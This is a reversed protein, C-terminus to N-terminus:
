PSWIWADAVVAPEADQRAGGFVLMRVGAAVVTRGTVREGPIAPVQQWSGTTTDLVLGRDGFYIATTGTRAGAAFTDGRPPNPLSSWVGSAPALSGGYPYSRGWNNVQGGDAGGLTPNVLTSGAALWPGTGLMASDPLRRWSGTALNLVAARTISPKESGPNPVMESDFLVLETGTWAMERTYAANLPDAPLASWTATRPDLLYDTGRHNEEGGLYAVLRDGAALLQYGDGFPVPERTWEDRDVRYVLLERDSGTPLFYATSGVVVGREGVLSVPSDAIERWRNTAPDFAAGDLLPTPDRVCSAAPPCPPADSGGVLLVERGTWLGVASERPSLPSDPLASWGSSGPVVPEAAPGCGALMAGLVVLVATGARRM